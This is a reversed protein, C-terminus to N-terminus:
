LNPEADVDTKLYCEATVNVNEVGSVVVIDCGVLALIIICVWALLMLCVLYFIYKYLFQIM